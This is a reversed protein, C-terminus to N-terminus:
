IMKNLTELYSELKKEALTADNASLLYYFKIKPETGSPRVVIVDRNDLGYYLVNSSPMGTSRIAGNELITQKKYDAVLTVKANGFQTPPTNRLSDMLAAMRSAGELGEMYIERNTEYFFGYKEWLAELADYLTMDKARYYATMECILM